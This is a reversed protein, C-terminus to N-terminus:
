EAEIAGLMREISCIYVRSSLLLSIAHRELRDAAFIVNEINIDELKVIPDFYKKIDFSKPNFIEIQTFNKNPPDKALKEAGKGLLEFAVATFAMFVSAGTTAPIVALTVTAVERTTATIDCVIRM